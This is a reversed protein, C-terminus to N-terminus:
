GLISRSVRLIRPTSASIRQCLGSSPRTGGIFNLIARATLSAGEEQITTYGSGSSSTGCSFTNTATVTGVSWSTMGGVRPNKEIIVVSRGLRAAESAAALGAAGAGVIVVDVEISM